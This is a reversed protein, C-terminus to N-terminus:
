EGYQGDFQEVVGWDPQYNDGFESISSQKWDFPSEVLNHKVPNYHIYNIHNNFDKEDRIIHDWFRSQWVRGTKLNHAKRYLAGFSLKFDHMFEDLEFNTPSLIMHFHDPLVVWADISTQHREKIRNLATWFLTINEILILKREHTVVTIFYVNGKSYYRKLISM